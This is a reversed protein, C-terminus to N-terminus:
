VLVVRAYRGRAAAQAVPAVTPVTPLKIWANDAAIQSEQPAPAPEMPVHNEEQAPTAALAATATVPKPISM